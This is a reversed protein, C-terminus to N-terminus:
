FHIERGKEQGQLITRERVMEQGTAVRLNSDM